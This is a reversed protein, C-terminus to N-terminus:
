PNLTLPFANSVSTLATTVPDITVYAHNAVTGALAPDLGAPITLNASAEGSGNLVGLSGSIITNPAALLDLTYSDLNLPVIQGGFPTGPAIGSLSGLMLYIDGANAPGAQLDFNVSGGSSLSVDIADAELPREVDVQCFMNFNIHVVCAFDYVYGPRPDSDLVADDFTTLFTLGPSNIPAGSVFTGDPTNPAGNPDYTYVNHLGTVWSWQVSDGPNLTVLGTSFSVSFMDVNTTSQAAATSALLGAALATLSRKLMTIPHTSGGLPAPPARLRLRATSPPDGAGATLPTKPAQTWLVEGLVHCLAGSRPAFPGWFCGLVIAALSKRVGIGASSAGPSTPSAGAGAARHARAAYKPWVEPTGGTRNEPKRPRTANGPWARSCGARAM